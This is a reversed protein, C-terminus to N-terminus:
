HRPTPVKSFVEVTSESFHRGLGLDGLKLAGNAGVLVNAPKIDRHMIRNKHMYRVADAIQFFYNWILSEELMKGAESTKKILRKLDGLASFSYHLLHCSFAHVYSDTALSAKHV